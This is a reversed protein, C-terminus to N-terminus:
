KLNDAKTLLETLSQAYIEAQILPDFSYRNNVQCHEKLISINFLETQLVLKLKKTLEGILERQEKVQATLTAHSNVAHVIYLNYPSAALAVYTNEANVIRGGKKIKWPLPEIKNETNEM